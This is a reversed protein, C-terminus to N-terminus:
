LNPLLRLDGQKLANMISVINNTKYWQEVGKVVAIIYNDNIIEIFVHFKIKCPGIHTKVKNKQTTFPHAPTWSIHNGTNSEHWPADVTTLLTTYINKAYVIVLDQMILHSLSSSQKGKKEALSIEPSRIVTSHKTPFMKSIVLHYNWCDFESARSLCPIFLSHSCFYLISLHNQGCWFVRLRESLM